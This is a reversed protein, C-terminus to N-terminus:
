DNSGRALNYALRLLDEIEEPTLQGTLIYANWTKPNMTHSPLVTEYRERLLKALKADCLAEIKLPKTNKHIITFIKDGTKYLILKEETTEDATIPGLTALFDTVFDATM